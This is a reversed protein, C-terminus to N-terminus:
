QGVRHNAITCHLSTTNHRVINLTTLQGDYGASTHCAGPHHDSHGPRTINELRINVMNEEADFSGTKGM